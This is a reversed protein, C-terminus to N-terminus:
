NEYAKWYETRYKIPDLLANKRAATVEMTTLEQFNEPLTDSNFERLMWNVVDALDEDSLPAQLAGPIRLLYSRMEPVSVMRGLESILTPVNPPKGEGNVRHCGSCYLLYNTRPSAAYSSSSFLLLVFPALIFIIISLRPLWRANRYKRGPGM